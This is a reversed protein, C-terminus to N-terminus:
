RVTIDRRRCLMAVCERQVRANLRRACSLMPRSKRHDGHFHDQLGLPRLFHIRPYVFQNPIQARQRSRCQLIQLPHVFLIAHAHLLASALHILRKFVELASVVFHFRHQGPHRFFPRRQALLNSRCHAAQLELIPGVLPNAMHNLIQLGQSGLQCVAEGVPQIQLSSGTLSEAVVRHVFLACPMTPETLRTVSMTPSIAAALPSCLVPMSCTLVTM